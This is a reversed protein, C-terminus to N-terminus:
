SNSQTLLLYLRFKPCMVISSLIGGFNMNIWSMYLKRLAMFLGLSLGVFATWSYIHGVDFDIRDLIQLHFTSVCNKSFDIFSEAEISFIRM